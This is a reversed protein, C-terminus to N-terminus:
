SWLHNMHQGWQKCWSQIFLAPVRHLRRVSLNSSRLTLYLMYANPLSVTKLTNSMFGAKLGEMFAEAFRTHIDGKIMGRVRNVARERLQWNHESERGEFPPLM